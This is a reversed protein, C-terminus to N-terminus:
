DIVEGSESHTEDQTLPLTILFTTGQGVVSEVKLTGQHRAIIGYSVSLGLGTGDGESKTTFFPDFIRRLNEPAIGVGTDMVRLTVHQETAALSLTLSGGGPMAQVANQILNILVQEIQQADYQVLVPEAPLDLSANVRGRRVLYETLRLAAQLTERLDRRNMDPTSQRAFTLLDSVITNARGANDRILTLQERAFDDVNEEQLIEALGKIVALPNKVDHVIGATLQGVAALKESQVLQQQTSQLRDNIVALERNRQATEALLSNAQETRDRLNDTMADFAEALDGIEDARQVNSKQTLDGGAVAQAAQRLKLIPSATNTALWYGVALVALTAITFIAAFTGRSSVETNVVYDSRLAVGLVGAPQNRVLFPSYSFEYQFEDLTVPPKVLSRNPEIPVATLSAIEPASLKLAEVGEKPDLFTRAIINGEKDLIMAAQALSQDRLTALLKDLRSGLLIGGVIEGANNRVPASAFLFTGDGLTRVGAFKDGTEDAQGALAAQVLPEKSLDVGSSTAASNGEANLILSLAEQGQRNVVTMVEIQENLVTPTLLGRLVEADSNELAEPVGVTFALQRLQALHLSERQVLGTAFNSSSASLNTYFRERVSGSVLRIIVFIGAAAVLLTLLVYPISFKTRLGGLRSRSPSQTALAGAPKIVTQAVTPKTPPESSLPQDSM